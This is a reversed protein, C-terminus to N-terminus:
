DDDFSLSLLGAWFSAHFSLGLFVGKMKLHMCSVLPTVKIICRVTIKQEELRFLFYIKSDLDGGDKDEEKDIGLESM